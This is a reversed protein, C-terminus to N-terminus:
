QNVLKSNNEDPYEEIDTKNYIIRLTELFFDPDSSLKNWLHKPSFNDDEQLIELYQLEISTIAEENCNSNQLWKILTKVQYKDYYNCNHNEINIKLTDIILQPEIKINTNKQIILSYLIYISKDTRGATNLNSVSNRITAYKEFEFGLVQTQEWFNRQAKASLCKVYLFIKETLPYKSIIAAKTIDDTGDIIRTIRDIDIRIVISHLLANDEINDTTSIITKIDKDTIFYSACLGVLIKNQVKNSFALLKEIGGDEYIKKLLSTQEDRLRKEECQYDSDKEYLSFQDDKFLRISYAETTDPLLWHSFDAIKQLRKASLVWGYESYRKHKSILDELKNWLIEQDEKSLTTTNDKVRQLIKDQVDEGVNEIVSIMEIMRNIDNKVLNLAIEIYGLSAAIYDKNTVEKAIPDVKLFFPEPIPRVTGVAKPMLQMLVKWTLSEDEECLGKFVGVRATVPSHTQPYWPLVIEILVDLFSPRIKALRLLVLMAKSFYREIKAINAVAWDLRNSYYLGPIFKEDEHLFQTFANDSDATLRIIQDLFANPSAEGFYQFYDAGIAFISWNKSSFFKQEFLHITNAIKNTSCNAFENVNNGLIAITEALGKRIEKSYKQNEPFNYNLPIECFCVNIMQFLSDIHNDFIKGAVSLLNKAHNKIRWVGNSFMFVDPSDFKFNRVSATFETFDISTLNKILELDGPYKENWGGILLTLPLLNHEDNITSVPIYHQQIENTLLHRRGKETLVINKSGVRTFAQGKTIINSEKVPDTEQTIITKSAEYVWEDNNAPIYIYGYTKGNFDVKGTSVDPRPAINDILNQWENDDNWQEADIGILKRDDSVGIVLFKDKGIAAESNLMAIVDKLFFPKQNSKYPCVKYDINSTESPLKSLIEKIKDDIFEM